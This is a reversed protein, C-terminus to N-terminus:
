RVIFRLERRDLRGEACDRRALCLAPVIVADFADEPSSQRAVALAVDAAEDQDHAALRQYFGVEPDLAPEDGLLVALFEFRSVHRGLVLLCVTLPGSLVFGIPGWM